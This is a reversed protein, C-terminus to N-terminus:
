AESHTITTKDLESRAFSRDRQDRRKRKIKGRLPYSESDITPGRHGWTVKLIRAEKEHAVRGGLRDHAKTQYAVPGELAWMVGTRRRNNVLFAETPLREGWGSKKEPIRVRYPRFRGTQRRGQSERRYRGDTAEEGRIVGGKLTKGNDKEGFENRRSLDHSKM